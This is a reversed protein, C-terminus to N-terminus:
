YSRNVKQRGMNRRAQDLDLDYSFGHEKLLNLFQAGNILTLNKDKVFEYSDSGYNSTTVLIGKNAGENQTTGFLERVAAVEVTSTYRKAQIVIKGGTIPDPDFIIADVGRDRSSRTVRVEANKGKFHEEFLQRVLHEFDEWDMEALNEGKESIIKRGDIFRNDNKDFRMIPPVDVTDAITAAAIGNSRKFFAEPDVHEIDIAKLDNIAIMLSALNAETDIGTSPSKFVTKINMAISEILNTQKFRLIEFSTRLIVGYIYSSYLKQLTKAALPQNRRDARQVKFASFSTVYIEFLILKSQIDCFVSFDPALSKPYESQRLAIQLFQQLAYSDGGQATRALLSIEEAAQSRRQEFQNKKKLWIAYSEQYIKEFNAESDRCIRQWEANEKKYKKLESEYNKRVEVWRQVDSRALYPRLTSENATSISSCSVEWSKFQLAYLAKSVLNSNSPSKPKEPFPLLKPQTPKAMYPERPVEPPFPLNPKNRNPPSIPYEIQRVFAAPDMTALTKTISPFYNETVGGLSLRRFNLFEAIQINSGESINTQTGSNKISENKSAHAIPLNNGCVGCVPIVNPRIKKDDIRNMKGCNECLCITMEATGTKIM